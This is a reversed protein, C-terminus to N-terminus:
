DDYLAKISGWTSEEVTAGGAVRSLFGPVDDSWRILQWQGEVDDRRIVFEARLGSATLILDPNTDLVVSVDYWVRSRYWTEGPYSVPDDPPIATWFASSSYMKISRSVVRNETRTDDFFNNYAALESAAGWQEPTKGSSFDAPSFYFIFNEDLLKDYEVANFTNFALELNDLLAYGTDLSKFVPGAPTKNVPETIGDDCAIGCFCFGIATVALLVNRFVM